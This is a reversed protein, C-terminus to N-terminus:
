ASKAEKDSLSKSDQGAKYAALLDSLAQINEPKWGPKTKDLWQFFPVYEPALRQILGYDVDKLSAPAAAKARTAATFFRKGVMIALSRNDAGVLATKIMEVEARDLPVPYREPFVPSAIPAGNQEMVLQDYLDNVQKQVSDYREFMKEPGSLFRNLLTYGTTGVPRWEFPSRRSHGGRVVEIWVLNAEADVRIIKVLRPTLDMRTCDRYIQGVEVSVVDKVLVYRAVPGSFNRVSFFSCDGVPIHKGNHPNFGSRIIRVKVVRGECRIDEIEFVRPMCAQQYGHVDRWQQGVKVVGDSSTNM